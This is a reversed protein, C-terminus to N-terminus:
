TAAIPRAVVYVVGALTLALGGLARATIMESNRMLLFGVPFVVLPTASTILVVEAAPLRRLAVILCFQATIGAFGVVTYWGLGASDAAGLRAVLGPRKRLVLALQVVCAAVAGLFAGALPENWTRVASARLINGVAYAAVSLLGIKLASRLKVNQTDGKRRPPEAVLVLGMVAVVMAASADWTPRDGLFGWAFLATALPTATPFLSARAAGLRQVADFLFWRGLFTSFLGALGFLFAARADLRLPQEQLALMLAFAVGSAATNVIVAVTFGLETDVRDSGLRAGLTSTAFLVLALVAASTAGAATSALLFGSTM